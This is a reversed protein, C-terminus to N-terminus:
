RVTVALCTAWVSVVLPIAGVDPVPLVLAPLMAGGLAAVAWPGRERAYPLLAAACALVLTAVAVAPRSLLAQWLVSATATVSRSGALGLGHPARAGDFPMGGGRVAAVIAAALVGAAVQLARRV